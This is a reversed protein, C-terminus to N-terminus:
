DLDTHIQYYSWILIKPVNEQPDGKRGQRALDEEWKSWESIMHYIMENKGSCLRCKSNQQTYNYKSKIYNAM